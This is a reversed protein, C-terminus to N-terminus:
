AGHCLRTRENARLEHSPSKPQTAFAVASISCLFLLNSRRVAATVSHANIALAGCGDHCAVFKLVTCGAIKHVKCKEIVQGFLGQSAKQDLLAYPFYQQGETRQSENLTHHCAAWIRCEVASMVIALQAHPNLAPVVKGDQPVQLRWRLHGDLIRLADRQENGDRM